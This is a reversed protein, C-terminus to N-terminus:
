NNQSFKKILERVPISPIQSRRPFSSRSRSTGSRQVVEDESQFHSTINEDESVTNVSDTQKQPSLPINPTNQLQIEERAYEESSLNQIKSPDDIRQEQSKVETDAELAESETVDTPQMQFSILPVSSSTESTSLLAQDYHPIETTETDTELAESETVDTPEM